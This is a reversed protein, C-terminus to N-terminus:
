SNEKQSKKLIIKIDEYISEITKEIELRKLTQYFESTFGDSFNKHVIRNMQILYEVFEQLMGRQAQIKFVNTFLRSLM